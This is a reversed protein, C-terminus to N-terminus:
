EANSLTHMNQMVTLETDRATPSEIGSGTGYLGGGFCGGCPSSWHCYYHIGYNYATGGAPYAQVDNDFYLCM